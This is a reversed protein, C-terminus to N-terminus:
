SMVPPDEAKETTSVAEGHQSDMNLVEGRM